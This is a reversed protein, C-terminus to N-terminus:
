TKQLAIEVFAGDDILMTERVTFAAGGVTISAGRVLSGFNSSRATLTYDTTIVMGDSIIQSPTDLIATATVAGAVCTVGFDALFMDLDETLAM